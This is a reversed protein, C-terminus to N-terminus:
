HKYFIGCAFLITMAVVCYELVEASSTMDLVHENMEQYMVEGQGFSLIGFAASSFLMKKIKTKKYAILAMVTLFSSLIFGTEHIAVYFLHGDHFLHGYIMPVSIIIVCALVAIILYSYKSNNSESLM